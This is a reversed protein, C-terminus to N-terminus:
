YHIWRKTFLEWVQIVSRLSKLHNNAYCVLAYYLHTKELM